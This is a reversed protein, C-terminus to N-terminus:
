SSVLYDHLFFSFASPTDALKERFRGNVSSLVFGRVGRPSKEEDIVALITMFM